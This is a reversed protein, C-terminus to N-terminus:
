FADFSVRPYGRRCWVHRGEINGPCWVMMYCRSRFGDGILPLIKVNIIVHVMCCTDKGTADWAIIVKIELKKWCPAIWKIYSQIVIRWQLCPYQNLSIWCTITTSMTGVKCTHSQMQLSTIFDFKFSVTFCINTTRTTSFVDKCTKEDM